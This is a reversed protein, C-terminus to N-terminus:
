YNKLDKLVDELEPDDGLFIINDKRLVENALTLKSAPFSITIVGEDFDGYLIEAHLITELFYLTNNYDNKSGGYFHVTRNIRGKFVFDNMLETCDNAYILTFNFLLILVSLVKMKIKGKTINQEM